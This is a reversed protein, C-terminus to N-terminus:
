DMNRTAREYEWQWYCDSIFNFTEEFVMEWFEFPNV